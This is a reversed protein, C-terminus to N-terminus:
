ELALAPFKADKVRTEVHTSHAAVWAKWKKFCKVMPQRMIQAVVKARGKFSLSAYQPTLSHIRM